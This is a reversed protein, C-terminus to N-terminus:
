AARRRMGKLLTPALWGKDSAIIVEHDRISIPMVGIM